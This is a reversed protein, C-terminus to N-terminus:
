HFQPRDHLEERSWKTQGVEFAPERMGAKL